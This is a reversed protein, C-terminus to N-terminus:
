SNGHLKSWRGILKRQLSKSRTNWSKAGRPSERNARSIKARQAPDASFFAFVLDRGGQATMYGALCSVFNLTGTKASVPIRYDGSTVPMNRLIRRLTGSGYAASLTQAMAETTMRSEGSLGSHDRLVIGSVGFKARAWNNMERASTVLSRTTGVRKVTASLGVMEATLNTSHKLMGRLIEDLRASLHTAVVRGGGPVASVVRPRPLVIGNSRALTQFVDGAYLAPKRVPLWRAGGGGLAGRAVSWDDFSGGDRYAYIPAKRNAVEMRAMAVQPRYRRTRADMTVAYAGSSRRWEFHVRNFNLAIGSVGPSYAVHDPQGPDISHVEPLVGHAVKFSGRVELIGASKVQTALGALDDTDMTPDGGGVLILDGTLVGNSLTGTALVRTRFRHSAGLTDLAYLATLAKAVSAPPLASGPGVSELMQGTSADAVVFSVRGSLRADSVIQDPGPIARKYFEPGRLVPRKSLQPPGAYGAVAATSLLGSLFIRRSFRMGM